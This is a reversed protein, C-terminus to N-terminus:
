WLTPSKWPVGMKPGGGYIGDPQRNPVTQIKEMQQPFEDWRVKMKKLPTPIGGVLWIPVERMYEMHQKHIAVVLFIM